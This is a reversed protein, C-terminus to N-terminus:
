AEAAFQVTEKWAQELAFLTTKTVNQLTTLRVPDRVLADGSPGWLVAHLGSVMEELKRRRCRDAQLLAASLDAPRTSKVAALYAAEAAVARKELLAEVECSASGLASLLREQSVLAEADAGPEKLSQERKAVDEGM